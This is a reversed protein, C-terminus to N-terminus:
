SSRTFYQYALEITEVVLSNEQAKFDSIVWKVPYAQKFNWSTMTNNNENLLEVNIDVPKFTFNEIADRFWSILGSSTLMGRKLVLNAYKSRVPLRYSFRNEGGVALEEVNIEATLGAVEQFQADEGTANIGTFHVRFHFGVPPYYIAM